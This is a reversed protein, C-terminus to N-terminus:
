NGQAEPELTQELLSLFRRLAPSRGKSLFAAGFSLPPQGALPLYRLGPQHLQPLDALYKKDDGVRYSYLTVECPENLGEILSLTTRALAECGHNSSGGHQCILIKKM